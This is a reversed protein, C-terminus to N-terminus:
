VKNGNGMYTKPSFHISLSFTAWISFITGAERRQVPCTHLNGSQFVLGPHGVFWGSPDLTPHIGVQVDASARGQWGPLALRPEASSRSSSRAAGPGLARASGFPLTGGVSGGARLEMPLCLQSVASRLLRGSIQAPFCVCVMVSPRLLFSLAPDNLLHQWTNAPVAMCITTCLPIIAKFYTNIDIKIYMNICRIYRHINLHRNLYRKLHRNFVSFKSLREVLSLSSHNKRDVM